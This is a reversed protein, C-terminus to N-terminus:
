QFTTQGNAELTLTGTGVYDAIKADTLYIYGAVGQDTGFIVLMEKVGDPPVVDLTNGPAVNSVLVVTQIKKQDTGTVNGQNYALKSGSWIEVLVPTTFNNVITLANPVKPTNASDASTCLFRMSLLIAVGLILQIKRQRM